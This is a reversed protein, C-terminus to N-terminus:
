EESRGNNDARYDVAAHNGDTAIALSGGNEGNAIIASREASTASAPESSAAFSLVPALSRVHGSSKYLTVQDANERGTSEGRFVDGIEGVVHADTVVGADRAVASESAQALVGPRYDAIYRARTVSATDVEVPGSMSS